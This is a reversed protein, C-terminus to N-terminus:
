SKPRKGNKLATCLAVSPPKSSPPKCMHSASLQLSHLRLNPSPDLPVSHPLLPLTEQLESRLSCFGGFLVEVLTEDAKPVLTLWLFHNPKSHKYAEFRGTSYERNCLVYTVAEARPM